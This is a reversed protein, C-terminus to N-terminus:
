VPWFWRKHLTSIYFRTTSGGKEPWCKQSIQQYSFWSVRHSLCQPQLVHRLIDTKKLATQPRTARPMYVRRLKEKWMHHIRKSISILTPTKPNETSRTDLTSGIRIVLMDLFQIASDTEVEMTVKIAPRLSNIHNFFEQLSDSGQVLDCTYSGSDSGGHHNTNRRDLALKWFAGALHQKGNSVSNVIAMSENQQFFKNDVQFWTTKPCVELLEM